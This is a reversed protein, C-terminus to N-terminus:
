KKLEELRNEILEHKKNGEMGLENATALLYRVKNIDKVQEIEKEIKKWHQGLFEEADEKSMAPKDEKIEGVEIAKGQEVEQVNILREKRADEPSFVTHEHKEVENKMSEKKVVNKNDKKVKKVDVEKLDIMDLKHFNELAVLIDKPYRITEIVQSKKHPLSFRGRAIRGESKNTVKVSINTDVLKM